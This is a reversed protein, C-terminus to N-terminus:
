IQGDYHIAVLYKAAISLTLLCFLYTVFDFPPGTYTSYRARLANVYEILIGAATFLGM